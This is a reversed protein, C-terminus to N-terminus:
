ARAGQRVGNAWLHATRESCGANTAQWQYTFGAAKWWPVADGGAFLDGKAGPKAFEEFHRDRGFFTSAQKVYPTGVNGAAKMAAAYAVVAAVLVGPEIGERIRANWARQAAQKSNSGERKPYQRWAEDFKSDCSRSRNKSPKNITLSPNPTVTVGRESTLSVGNADGHCGTGTVTVGREDGPTVVVGRKKMVMDYCVPRRDGRDIYAAVIAQNGKQILGLEELVDLKRRITSESLGTDAELRSTSPFAAKGDADAYNALCLLVHRATADRIDQQEIAWTMAQVSM